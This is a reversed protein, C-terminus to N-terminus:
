LKNSFSKTVMLYSSFPNILKIKNCLCNYLSQHIKPQDVNCTVETMASLSCIYQMRTYM